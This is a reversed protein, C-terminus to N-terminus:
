YPALAFAEFIRILNPPATSKVHGAIRPRSLLQFELNNTQARKLHAFSFYQRDFHKPNGNITKFYLANM